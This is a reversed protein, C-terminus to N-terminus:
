GCIGLNSSVIRPVEKDKRKLVLKERKKEKKRKKKKKKLFKSQEVHFKQELQPKYM